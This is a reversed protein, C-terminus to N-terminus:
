NVIEVGGCSELSDLYFELIKLAALDDHRDLKKGPLAALQSSSRENILEVSPVISVFGQAFKRIVACVENESGDGSVPLGIVLHTIKKTRILQQVQGVLDHSQVVSLPFSITGDPSWALGSFKTGYDVSLYVSM